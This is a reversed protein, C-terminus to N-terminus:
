QIKMIMPFQFLLDQERSSIQLMHYKIRRQLSGSPIHHLRLIAHFRVPLFLPRYSITPNLRSMSLYQLLRLRWFNIDRIWAIAKGLNVPLTMAM